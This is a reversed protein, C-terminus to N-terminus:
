GKDKIIVYATILAESCDNLLTRPTDWDATLAGSAATIKSIGGMAQLCKQYSSYLGDYAASYRSNSKCVEAATKLYLATMQTYTSAKDLATAASSYYSSTAARYAENYYKLANDLEDDAANVTTLLQTSINASGAKVISFKVRLAENALRTVIAATESRLIYESPCFEGATSKGTIIGARYLTYISQYAGTLPVDPIEGVNITNIQTLAASPLSAAFIKAFQTRTAYANYNSYDGASIIQNSVCYDLYSQYWPTGTNFDASGTMYISRLRAALAIVEALTVNDAAGFAGSTRGNMLGYEYATEVNLSYWDSSSVDSFTGQTYTITKQFNLFQDYAFATTAFLSATLVISLILSMSKKM